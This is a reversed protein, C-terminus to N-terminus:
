KLALGSAGVMAALASQTKPLASPKSIDIKGVVRITVGECIGLVNAANVSKGNSVVEDDVAFLIDITNTIRANMTDAIVRYGIKSHVSDLGCNNSVEAGQMVEIVTGFPLEEGLDRSRAAVVDADSRAGSATTSPDGDTQRPTANYATLAVEHTVFSPATAHGTVGTMVFFALLGSLIFTSM